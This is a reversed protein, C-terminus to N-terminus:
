LLGAEAALVVAHSRNNASLKEVIKEVHNKVTHVSIGLTRAISPNTHGAAVLALVERERVTLSPLTDILRATM